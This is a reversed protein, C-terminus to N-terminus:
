EVTEAFVARAARAADLEFPPKAGRELMGGSGTARASGASSGRHVGDKQPQSLSRM